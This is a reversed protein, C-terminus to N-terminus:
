VLKYVPSEVYGHQITTVYEGIIGAERLSSVMGENESYDKIIVENEKLGDYDVLNVTATAIPEHTGVEFLQIATRGNSYKGFKPYCDWGKFNINKM